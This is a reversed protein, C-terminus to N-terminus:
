DPNEGHSFGASSEVEFGYETHPECPSAQVADIDRRGYGVRRGAFSADRMKSVKAVVEEEGGGVNAQKEFPREM